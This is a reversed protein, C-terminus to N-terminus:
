PFSGNCSKSMGHLKDGSSAGMTARRRFRFLRSSVSVGLAFVGLGVVLAVFLVFFSPFVFGSGRPSVFSRWVRMYVYFFLVM